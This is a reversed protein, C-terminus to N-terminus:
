GAVRVHSSHMAGCGYSAEGPAPLQWCLWSAREIVPAELRFARIASLRGAFAPAYLYPDAVRRQSNGPPLLAFGPQYGCATGGNHDAELCGADALQPVCLLDIQHAM